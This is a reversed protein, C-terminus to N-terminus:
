KTFHYNARSLHLVLAPIQRLPQLRGSLSARSPCDSVHEMRPPLAVPGVPLSSLVMLKGNVYELYRSDHNLLVFECGEAGM